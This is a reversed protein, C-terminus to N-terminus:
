IYSSYRKLIIIGEDNDIIEILSYVNNSNINITIKSEDKSHDIANKLINTIAEIEWKLDCKIKSDNIVNLEININRLDCLTSVNKISESAIDKLNNEKKIFSVTNADFKSLKLLTQVLFNINNVNRKIDVIFDNRIGSDMDPDEIINDLMVLISTLPTKLQHSIDELSKKLNIKDKTSNDAAEKLMITTKYIENKLISLEDESISDIELEYNKKNIEEICKAIDKIDKERKHNYRMYIILLVGIVSIFFISNIIIFLNYSKDNKVLISTNIDIGYKNFFDVEINDSNLIEAIEKENVDPYKEKVVNIISGIKNNFNSTYTNYEYVNLFIFIIFLCISAIITAVVYKKLKVKNKM